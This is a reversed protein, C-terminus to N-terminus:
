IIRNNIYKKVDYKCKFGFKKIAKTTDVDFRELFIEYDRPNEIMEIEGGHSNKIMNSIELVSYHKDSAINYFQAENKDGILKNTSLVFARAADKVNLFNRRQTGPKYITLPKKEKIKDLFYNIITSKTIEKNGINHTGYVNSLILIHAPFNDKSFLEITKTGFLKNLGYFTVPDKPDTEKIPFSKPIGFLAMSASFTLPIKYKRCVNVVNQTGNINVDIALEPQEWCIVLGTIAALHHIVDCDKFLKEIKKYNRIDANIIKNSEIENIKSLYHNDIGVVDHGEKLLDCMIRSGIFGAAGTIGIRM